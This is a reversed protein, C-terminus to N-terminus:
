QNELKKYLKKNSDNDDGSENEENIVDILRSKAPMQTGRIAGSGPQRRKGDFINKQRHQM